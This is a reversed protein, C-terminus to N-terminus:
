EKNPEGLENQIGYCDETRYNFENVKRPLRPSKNQTEAYGLWMFSKFYNTTFTNELKM